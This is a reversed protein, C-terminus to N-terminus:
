EEIFPAVVASLETDPVDFLVPSHAYREIATANELLTSVDVGFCDAVMEVYETNLVVSGFDYAYTGKDNAIEHYANLPEFFDAKRIGGLKTFDDDLITVVRDPDIWASGNSDDPFEVDIYGNTREANYREEFRRLPDTTEQPTM